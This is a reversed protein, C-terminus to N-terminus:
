WQGHKHSPLEPKKEVSSNDLIGGDYKGQLTTELSSNFTSVLLPPPSFPNPGRPDPFGSSLRFLLLLLIESTEPPCYNHCDWQHNLCKLQSPEAEAAQSLECLIM